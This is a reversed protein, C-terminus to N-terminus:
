KIVEDIDKLLDVLEIIKKGADWYGQQVWNDKEEKISPYCRKLLGRLKENEEKIKQYDSLGLSELIDDTSTKFSKIVRGGGWPKSGSVRYDNIYLSEGECGSVIEIKILNDMDIFEKLLKLESEILNKENVWKELYTKYENFNRNYVGRVRSRQTAFIILNVRTLKEELEKIKENLLNGTKM